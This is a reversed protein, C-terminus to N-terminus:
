KMAINQNALYIGFKRDAVVVHSKFWNLILDILDKPMIEDSCEHFLKEEIEFLKKIFRDHDSKVDFFEPYKYKIMYREEEAFHTLAYERLRLIDTYVSTRNDNNIFSNLSRSYKESVDNLLEVFRKHQKDIENVGICYKDNWLYGM